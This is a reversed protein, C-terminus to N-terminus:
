PFLILTTTVFKNETENLFFSRDLCKFSTHCFIRLVKSLFLIQFNILFPKQTTKNKLLKWTNKIKRNKIFPKSHFNVQLSQSKFQHRINKPSACLCLPFSKYDLAPIKLQKKWGFNSNTSFAEFLFNVNNKAGVWNLDIKV